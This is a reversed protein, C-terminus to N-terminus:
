VPLDYRIFWRQVRKVKDVRVENFPSWVCSAYELKPRVLFTYLSKLTYPDRCELSQRRQLLRALWSGFFEDNEDM